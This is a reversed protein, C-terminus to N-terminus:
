LIVQIQVPRECYFSMEGSKVTETMTSNRYNTKTSVEADTAQVLDDFAECTLEIMGYPGAGYDKAFVSVVEDSQEVIAQLQKALLEVKHAERPLPMYNNDTVNMEREELKGM